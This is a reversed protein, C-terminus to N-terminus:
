QAQNNLKCSCLYYSSGVGNVWQVPGWNGSVGADFEFHFGIADVLVVVIHVMAKM